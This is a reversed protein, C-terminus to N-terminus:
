FASIDTVELISSGLPGVWLENLSVVRKIELKKTTQASSKLQVKQKTKFDLTSAVFVQGYQGGNSTLPRPSIALWRKETVKTAM